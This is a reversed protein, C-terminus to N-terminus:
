RSRVRAASSSAPALSKRGTRRPVAAPVDVARDVSQPTVTIKATNPSDSAQYSLAVRYDCEPEVAIPTPLFIIQPNM